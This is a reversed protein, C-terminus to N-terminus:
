ANLEAQRSRWEAPPLYDLRSHPRSENYHTIWATIAAKAEDYTEFRDPPPFRARLPLSVEFSSAARSRKATATRSSCVGVRVPGVSEPSRACRKRNLRSCRRTFDHHRSIRTQHRHIDGLGNRGALPLWAFALLKLDDVVRPPMIKDKGNVADYSKRM